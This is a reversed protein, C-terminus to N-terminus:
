SASPGNDTRPSNDERIPSTGQASGPAQGPADQDRVATITIEALYESGDRRARWAEEKIAAGSAARALDAGPKDAAIDAAPYLIEFPRGLIERARWGTIVEAGRNWTTVLGQEDVLFAARDADGEVFLALTAAVETSRNMM